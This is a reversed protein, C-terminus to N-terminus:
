PLKHPAFVPDADLTEMFKQLDPFAKDADVPIHDWTGGRIAHLMAYLSLDAISLKGGVTYGNACRKAFFGFYKPLDTQLFAERLKKKEEPDKHTLMSRHPYNTCNLESLVVLRSISLVLVKHQPVKGMCENTTEVIEDVQIMLEANEVPYM